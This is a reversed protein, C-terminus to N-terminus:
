PKVETEPEPKPQEIPTLQSRPLCSISGEWNKTNMVVWCVADKDEVRKVSQVNSGSGQVIVVENDSVRVNPESKYDIPSPSEEEVVTEVDSTTSEVQETPAPQPKNEPYPECGTLSFLALVLLLKKM